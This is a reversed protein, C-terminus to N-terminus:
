ATNPRRIGGSNRKSKRHQFITVIAFPTRGFRRENKFDAANVTAADPAVPHIEFESADSFM